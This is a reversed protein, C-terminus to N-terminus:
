MYAPSFIQTEPLLFHSFNYALNGLLIGPWVGFGFLLVAGLSFGTAPWVVSIALPEGRIGLQRGVEANCYILLALFLNLFWRFTAAQMKRKFYSMKTM